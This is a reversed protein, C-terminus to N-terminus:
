LSSEKESEEFFNVVSEESITKGCETIYYVKLYGIDSDSVLEFEFDKVRSICSLTGYNFEIVDCIDYKHDLTVKDNHGLNVYGENNM